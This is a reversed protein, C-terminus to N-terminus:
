ARHKKRVFRLKGASVPVTTWDYRRKRGAFSKPAGCFDDPAAPSAVRFFPRLKTAVSSKAAASSAVRQRARHNPPCQRNITSTKLTSM